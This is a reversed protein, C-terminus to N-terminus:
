GVGNGDLADIISRVHTRPIAQASRARWSIARYVQVRGQASADIRVDLSPLSNGTEIHERNVKVRSLGMEDRKSVRPAEGHQKMRATLAEYPSVHLLEGLFYM